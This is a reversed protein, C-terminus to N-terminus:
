SHYFHMCPLRIISDNNNIKDICIFCEAKLNFNEKYIETQLFSLQSKSLGNHLLEENSYISDDSNHDNSDYPFIDDDINQNIFPNNPYNFNPENIIINNHIIHNNPNNSYSISYTNNGQNIHQQNNFDYDIDMKNLSKNDVDSYLNSKDSKNDEEDLTKAINDNCQQYHIIYAEVNHLDFSLGCHDCILRDYENNINNNSINTMDNKLINNQLNNSNANSKCFRKHMESCNM